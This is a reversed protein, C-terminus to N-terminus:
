EEVGAEEFTKRLKPYQKAFWDIFQEDHGRVAHIEEGLGSEFLYAHIIEHRASEKVVKEPDRVNADAPPKYVVIRRVTFDCYGGVELLPVEDEDTSIYEYDWEAGLINLKM